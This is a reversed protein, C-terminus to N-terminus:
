FGTYTVTGQNGVATCTMVVTKGTLDHGDSGNKGTATITYTGTTNGGTSAYTFHDTATWDGFGATDLPWKTNEQYYSKASTLNAGERATAESKYSNTIYSTYLPVAIAALVAVIIVVVMLEIMTFGRRDTRLTSLM